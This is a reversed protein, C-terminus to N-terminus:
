HKWKSRSVPRSSTFFLGHYWTGRTWGRRAASFGARWGLLISKDITLTASRDGPTVYNSWVNEAAPQKVIGQESTRRIKGRISDIRKSGPAPWCCNSKDHRSGRPEEVLLLPRDPSSRVSPSIFRVAHGNNTSLCLANNHVDVFTISQEAVTHSLSSTAINSTDPSIADRQRRCEVARSIYKPVISEKDRGPSTGKILQPGIFVGICCYDKKEEKKDKERNRHSSDNPNNHIPPVTRMKSSRMDWLRRSICRTSKITLTLLLSLHYSAPLTTKASTIKWTCSHITSRAINIPILQESHALNQSLM